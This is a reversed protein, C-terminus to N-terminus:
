ILPKLKLQHQLSILTKYKKLLTLAEESTSVEMFDRVVKKHRFLKALSSLTQLYIERKGPPSLILLIIHVPRRILSSQFEIGARSRGMAVVIEDVQETVMHPIAVGRGVNTSLRRERRVIEELLPDPASIINRFQLLQLLEKIVEERTHAELELKILPELPLHVELGRTPVPVPAPEVLVADDEEIGHLERYKSVTIMPPREKGHVEEADFLYGPGEKKIYQLQHGLSELLTIKGLQESRRMLVSLIVYSMRRLSEISQNRHIRVDMDVQAITGIGYRHEIDILMGTEVGYGTFFPIRQLITRKGTYEGSLPQALVSLDPFLLNLFPRVMLETVRGGGAVVKFGMKLPRRYFSKVYGIEPNHLIPGVLGYVFRPHINRIDADVWVIIDGSFLYLSKWLNEGKGRFSGLEPLAEEALFVKAGARRAIDRTADESGSDVIGIEDLLPHRTMLSGKLVRIIKGITKAENLTPLCLSITLGQERKLRILEDIDAFQSHHFTREKLWQEHDMEKQAM